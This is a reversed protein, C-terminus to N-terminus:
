NIVQRRRILPGKRDVWWGGVWGGVQAESQGDGVSLPEQHHAWGGVRAESQGDGVSLARGIEFMEFRRGTWDFESM